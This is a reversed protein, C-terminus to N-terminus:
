VAQVVLVPQFLALRLSKSRWRNLRWSPFLEVGQVKSAVIPRLRAHSFFGDVCRDGYRMNNGSLEPGTGFHLYVIQSLCEAVALFYGNCGNNEVGTNRM